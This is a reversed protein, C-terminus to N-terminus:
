DNKEKLMFISVSQSFIILGEMIVSSESFGIIVFPWSFLAVKYSREILILALAVLAYNIQLSLFNSLSYFIVILFIPLKKLARKKQRIETEKFIPILEQYVLVAILSALSCISINTKISASFPLLGVICYIAISLLSGGCSILNEKIYKFNLAVFIGIPVLLM